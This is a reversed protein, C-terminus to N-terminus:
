HDFPLPRTASAAKRYKRTAWSKGKRLQATRLALLRVDEPAVALVVFPVVEAAAAGFNDTFYQDTRGARPLM